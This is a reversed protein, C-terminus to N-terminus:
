LKGFHKAQDYGGAMKKQVELTKEFNYEYLGGNSQKADTMLHMLEHFVISESVPM